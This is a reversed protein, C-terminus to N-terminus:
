LTVMTLFTISAREFVHCLLKENIEKNTKNNIM